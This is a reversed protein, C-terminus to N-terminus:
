RTSEKEKQKKQEQEKRQDEELIMDINHKATVYDQM